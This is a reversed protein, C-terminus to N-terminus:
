GQGNTRMEEHKNMDEDEEDEDTNEDEEDEEDGKRRTEKDERGRTGEDGQRRTESAAASSRRKGWDKGLIEGFIGGDNSLNIGTIPATPVNTLLQTPSM